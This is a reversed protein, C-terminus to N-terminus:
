NIKEFKTMDYKNDSIKEMETEYYFGEKEIILKKIAMYDNPIMEDKLNELEILSVWKLEGEESEVYDTHHPRLLNMYLIFTAKVEDNEKLIETYIGNLKIYDCFIGTEEEVERIAAQSIHEGSEIKGGPLCWYGKYPDKKRKLLLINEEKDIIASVAVNILKM